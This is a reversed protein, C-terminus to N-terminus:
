SEDASPARDSESNRDDEDFFGLLSLADGRSFGARSQERTPESGDTHERSPYHSM